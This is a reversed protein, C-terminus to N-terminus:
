IEEVNQINHSPINKKNFMVNLFLAQKLIGESWKMFSKEMTIWIRHFIQKMTVENCPIMGSCFKACTVVACSDHSTCFKMAIVKGYSPHSCISIEISNSNPHSFREHFAGRIVPTKNWEYDGTVWSGFIPLLLTSELNTGLWHSADNFLLVTEWQSPAFRSDVRCSRSKSRSSHTVFTWISILYKVYNFILFRVHAVFCWM